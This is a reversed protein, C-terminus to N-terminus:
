TTARGCRHRRRARAPAVAPRSVGAARGLEAKLAVTISRESTYLGILPPKASGVAAASRPRMQRERNSTESPRPQQAPREAALRWVTQLPLWARKGDWRLGCPPYARQSQASPVPWSVQRSA